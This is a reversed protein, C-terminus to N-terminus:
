GDNVEGVVWSTGGIVANKKVERQIINLQQKVSRDADLFTKRNNNFTVQSIGNDILPNDTVSVVESKTVFDTGNLYPIKIPYVEGLRPSVSSNLVVSISVIPELVYSQKAQKGADVANQVDAEYREGDKIGWRKISADDQVFFPKFLPKEATSVVRIRNVINMSDWQMSASPSNHQYAILVNKENTWTAKDYLHVTKGYPYIGYIGFVERITGLGDSISCNGFDTIVKNSFTGHVEYTYSGDLGAFLFALATNISFNVDGMKVEYQRRGNLEYFIHTATIQKEVSAGNFNDTGQKIVYTEGDFLLFNEYQLMGYAVTTSYRATFSLQYSGNKERTRTFSAMDFDSVVESLGTSRDTVVLKKTVM